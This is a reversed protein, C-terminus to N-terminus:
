RARSMPASSVVKSCTITAMWSSEMALALALFGVPTTNPEFFSNIDLGKVTCGNTNVFLGTEVAPSGSLSSQEVQTGVIQILPTGAYGPQTTGDIIVSDTIVPLAVLPAITQM